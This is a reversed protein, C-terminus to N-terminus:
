NPTLLSSNRGRDRGMNTFVNPRFHSSLHISLNRKSFWCYTLSLKPQFLYQCICLSHVAPCQKIYRLKEQKVNISVPCHAPLQASHSCVMIEKKLLAAFFCEQNTLSFKIHINNTHRQKSFELPRYKFPLLYILM